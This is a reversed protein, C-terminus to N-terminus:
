VFLKNFEATKYKYWWPSSEADVSQHNAFLGYARGAAAMREAGGPASALKACFLVDQIFAFEARTMQLNVVDVKEIKKVEVEATANEIKM